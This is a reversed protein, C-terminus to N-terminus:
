WIICFYCIISIITLSLAYYFIGPYSKKRSDINKFAKVFYMIPTIISFVACVIVFHISGSGFFVNALPLAAFTGIHLIKRCYETDLFKVFVHESLLLLIAIVSIITLYGYFVM